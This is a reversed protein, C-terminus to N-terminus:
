KGGIGATAATLTGDDSAQRTTDDSPQRDPEPVATPARGTRVAILGGVALVAGLGGVAAFAWRTGLADAVAGTFPAGLAMGLTLASGYLGMAEGRARGPVLRSVADAGAALSPACLVGAPILLLALADWGAALGMPITALGLGASLVLPHPSHRMAGYVFGGALSYVSWLVFILSTWGVQGADRLIAVVGVDTGSLVLTAALTALLVTVFPVRLWSRRPVAPGAVAEEDATRIPPNLLWMGIGSLVILGGVLWASVPSALQTASAVALAPGVMFSLEVSMSDISFAPKRQEEPVLAAISQRVVSFMPIALLGALFAAVLLAPFPLLAAVLWFAAEVSITLALMARLGRRDTLRGLLPAGIAAGTTFLGGVLGAAGYGRELGLVVHLTLTMGAATFPVRALLAVVMLSRVGPLALVRRYADLHM